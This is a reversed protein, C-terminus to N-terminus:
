NSDRNGQQADDKTPLKFSLKHFKLYTGMEMEKKILIEEPFKDVGDKHPYIILCDIISTEDCDIKTIKKRLATNRAYGSLQRVNNHHVKDDWLPIYKADIIVREDYKVFDIENGYTSVHHDIQDKYASKLKSYIYLEFLLSMDIWFPPLSKESEKDIQEIDYSFRKLILQAVKLAETYEKYLPNIKFQKITQLPIDDNITSMAGLCYTTMKKLDASCSIDNYINIFRNIFALTKKLIRNEICDISYDQYRCITRDSRGTSYNRKLTQNLLVKGKIKSSLNEERQIYNFKLGKKVIQETLKLFHVILMPTLISQATDIKISTANFDISYIRGLKSSVDRCDNDFCHMFMTMFDLNNIKPRVYLFSEREKIWKLGIFYKARIKTQKRDCWDVGLLKEPNNPDYDDSNLIGILAKRKNCDVALQESDRQERIEINVNSQM